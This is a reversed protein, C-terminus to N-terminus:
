GEFREERWAAFLAAAGIGGQRAIRLKGDLCIAVTSAIGGAAPGGDILVDVADGFADAQDPMTPPPRGAPNASSSVIARGLRRCLGRVFPSNPVRIGVSAGAADPIVLTLPGPWFRRALRDTEQPPMAGLSRAMDLDDVLLQFPKAEAGERGKLRRLRGLAGSHGHIVGIGYVTETPFVVVGGGALADRAARAAAEPDNDLSLRLLAM